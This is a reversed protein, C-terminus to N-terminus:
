GGAIMMDNVLISGCKTASNLNIDAGVAVIGKFMAKLNGAITIEEVPYQIVGNEVWFGCAGRSYDGTVINVGQGMLETVLLGKDMEKLIDELDRHTAAVTLNFVGGNNATTKLGLKRASYSGLVYQNVCGREVFVNERTLIGEGDFPSSGLAQLLHPQEYISMFDPFVQQELSNLLFTNKRYLNSGSTANIYTGILGSSLRPSFVVPVRQTKIKTGNLRALVRNVATKALMDAPSLYQPARSLTYDYDRQMKNGDTAILACSMAHRTSEVWCLRGYSDAFGSGMKYTSINVGDSNTIRSDQSLATEECQIALEIAEEPTIQWPAYLDLEPYEHTVLDKDALGFCTDEASVSAIDYAHSVMAKLADESLDTTSANGQRHGVYVTVGVSRTDHFALTDVTKMRVDVSFGEEQSLSVAANTGGNEKAYHLVQQMLGLCSDKSILSYSKSNQIIKRM